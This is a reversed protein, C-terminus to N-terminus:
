PATLLDGSATRQYFYDNIRRPATSPRAAGHARSQIESTITLLTKV